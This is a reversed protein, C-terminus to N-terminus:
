VNAKYGLLTQARYIAVWWFNHSEFLEWIKLFILKKNNTCFAPANGFDEQQLYFQWWVKHM